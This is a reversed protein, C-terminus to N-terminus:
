CNCERFNTVSIKKIDWTPTYITHKPSATRVRFDAYYKPNYTMMFTPPDDFGEILLGIEYNMSPNMPGACDRSARRWGPHVIDFLAIPWPAITLASSFAM